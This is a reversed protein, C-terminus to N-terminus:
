KKATDFLTRIDAMKQAVVAGSAYPGPMYTVKFGVSKLHQEALIFAAKFIFIILPRDVLRELRATLDFVAEAKERKSLGAERSTPRRVLDAFGFGQAFAYEDETEPPLSGEVIGYSRLRSWFGKGLRGQLYHGKAVSVPSPNIGVFVAKLGPRLLEKLTTIDQGDVHIIETAM